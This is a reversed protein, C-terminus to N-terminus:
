NQVVVFLPVTTPPSSQEGATQENAQRPIQSRRFSWRATLRLGPRVPQRRHWRIGLLSVIKAAAEAEVSELSPLRFSAKKAYARTVAKSGHGLAAQAYREPYGAEAAREAWSYRYSHLTIGHIKLLQCRQKFETARDSERVSSLYPFLKGTKPLPKLLELLSPGLAQVSTSGTKMRKFSMTNTTLNFDEAELKAIDSQSGGIHWLMEYYAKREPNQERGVIADHEARTIARQEKYHIKPWSIKGIVLSLRWSMGLAFNHLRRLYTNASTGGSELVKDFDDARTEAVLLKRIPDFSKSKAAREWRIKTPGRKKSIIAEMVNQWTRNLAKPDGILLHTRAMQLNHEVQQFPQNKVSLLERAKNKDTTELSERKGTETNECWWIKGGKSKDRIYMRYRNKM